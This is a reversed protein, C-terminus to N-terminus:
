RAVILLGAWKRVSFGMNQLLTLYSAKKENRQWSQGNQTSCGKGTKNGEYISVYCLPSYRLCDDLVDKIVDEEKIVNLVNSLISFDYWRDLVRRNHGDTQNYKDAGSWTHAHNEMAFEFIHDIFKGCGYDLVSAGALKGYKALVKYVAPLKVANISTGASTYAQKSMNAVISTRDNSYLDIM